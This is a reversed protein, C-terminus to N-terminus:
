RRGTAPWGPTCRPRIPSRNRSSTSSSSPRPSRWGAAPSWPGESSRTGAPIPCRWCSTAAPSTPSARVRSGLPGHGPGAPASRRLQRALPALEAASPARYFGGVRVNVPHIARGGLLNWSRTGPAACRSAANSSTGTTPRWRSSERTGSSTPHTCCTSTCRTAASGNGATCCGGCARSRATWARGRVRRRDGPLRQDPLRRPLHRLGARHHGAARHLVPRAPVGRLLAAARLHGATGRGGRQWDVRVYM